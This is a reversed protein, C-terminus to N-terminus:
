EHPNMAHTANQANQANSGSAARVTKPAAATAMSTATGSTKTLDPKCATHAPADAPLAALTQGRSDDARSDHRRMPDPNRAATM